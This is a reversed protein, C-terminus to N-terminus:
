GHTLFRRPIFVLLLILGIEVVAMVYFVWRIKPWLFIPLRDSVKDALTENMPVPPPETATRRWLASLWTARVNALLLAQGFIRLVSFGNGSLRQMAFASLVYALFVSVAAFRSRQRVGLGGLFYFSAEFLAAFPSGSIAEFILTVAAVWCCLWLGQRSVYDVDAENHISPWFLSKVRTETRPTSDSLGLTQM